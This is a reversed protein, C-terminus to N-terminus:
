DLNGFDLVSRENVLKNHRFMSVKEGQKPFFALKAGSVNEKRDFILDEEHSIIPKGVLSPHGLILKGNQRFDNLKM